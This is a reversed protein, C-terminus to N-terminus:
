DIGCALRLHDLGGGVTFIEKGTLTGSEPVIGILEDCRVVTGHRRFVGSIVQESGLITAQLLALRGVLDRAKLLRKGRNISLVLYM